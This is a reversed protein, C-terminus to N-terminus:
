HNPYRELVHTVATSAPGGLTQVLARRADRVQASGAEGRLQLVAEVAQYCGAAGLPNGRGKEGGLTCIPLRGKLGFAGEQLLRFAEGRRAFGSAELALIAYISFASCVEFFDVDTPLIGAKRCARDTASAAANFALADKRDHLALADSAISSATIRVLPHGLDAPLSQPRALILAAAGDAYPAMDLRRLPSSTMESREYAARDIPRHYMANPNHMANAHALIALDALAHPPMDHEQMYRQMLLGAQATPTLGHMAEFDYDMTEAIAAQLEEEVVDSCKEVGVVAAVEVYGSAVAMYGLRLAGAASAGAAEVTFSEIGSLNAYDTLLAGLNTQQQLVSALANGIYLAQPKIGGADRCAALIARVALSRLSLSWHEGVPVQGIGAIVVENM